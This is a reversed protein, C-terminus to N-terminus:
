FLKQQSVLEPYEFKEIVEPVNVGQTFIKKSVPYAELVESSPEKMMGRLEDKDLSIDLWKKDKLIVPMRDKDLDGPLVGETTVITFTCRNDWLDWLGAITFAEDDKRKVYYPYKSGGLEKWEFFGDMPIMCRRQLASARFSPKEFMTEGRANHTLKKIMEAKEGDKVWRPILGWQMFTFQDVDESSIVPVFPFDFASIHYNREPREGSQFAAGFREELYEKSRNLSM